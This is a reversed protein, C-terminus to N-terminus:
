SALTQVRAEHELLVVGVGGGRSDETTRVFPRRASPRGRAPRADQVWQDRDPRFGCHRRRAMGGYSM